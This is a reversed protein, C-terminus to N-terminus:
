LNDRLAMYKAFRKAQYDTIEHVNKELKWESLYVEWEEPLEMYKSLLAAETKERERLYELAKNLYRMAYAYSVVIGGIVLRGVKKNQIAYKVWVSNLFTLNIFEYPKLEFNARARAKSYEKELSIYYYRETRTIQRVNRVNKKDLYDQVESLTQRKIINKAWNDPAYCYEYEVAPYEEKEVLNIKYLNADKLSVDHTRNQWGTGRNNDVDYLHQVTLIVDGRQINSNCRKIIEEFTGFRNDEILADTANFLLYKGGGKLFYEQEPIELM